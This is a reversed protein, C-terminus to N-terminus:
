ATEEDYFKYITDRIEDINNQGLVAYGNDYEDYEQDFGPYNRDKILDILCEGDSNEFDLDFDCHTYVCTFL